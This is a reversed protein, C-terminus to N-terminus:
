FLYRAALYQGIFM